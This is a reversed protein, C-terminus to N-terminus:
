FIPNYKSYITDLKKIEEKSVGQSCLGETVGERFKPLFRFCEPRVQANLLIHEISDSINGELFQMADVFRIECKDQNLRAMINGDHPESIIRGTLSTFKALNRGIEYALNRRSFNTLDLFDDLDEFPLYEMLILGKNQKNRPFYHSFPEPVLNPSKEFVENLIVYEELLSDKNNRAAAAAIYNKDEGLSVKYVAKQVGNGIPIIEEISSNEEIKEFYDEIFLIDERIENELLKIRVM